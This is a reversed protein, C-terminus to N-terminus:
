LAHLEQKFCHGAELLQENSRRIADLERGLCGLEGECGILKADSSGLDANLESSRQGECDKQRILQRQTELLFANRANANECDQQVAHCEAQHRNVESRALNFRNSTDEFQYGKTRCTEELQRVQDRLNGLETTKSNSANTSAFNQQEQQKLQARM